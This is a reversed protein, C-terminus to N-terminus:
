QRVRRVVSRPTILLGFFVISCSSVNILFSAAFLM